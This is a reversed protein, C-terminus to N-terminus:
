LFLVTKKCSNPGERLQKKRTAEYGRALCPAVCHLYGFPISVFSKRKSHFEFTIPIHVSVKAHALRWAATPGQERPCAKGINQPGFSLSKQLAIGPGILGMPGPIARCFDRLRAFDRLQFPQGAPELRFSTKKEFDPFPTPKPVKSFVSSFVM